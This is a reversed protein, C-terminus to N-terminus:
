VMVFNKNYMYGPLYETPHITQLTIKPLKGLVKKYVAYYNSKMAIEGAYNFIFPNRKLLNFWFNMNNLFFKELVFNLRYSVFLDNGIDHQIQRKYLLDINSKSYGSFAKLITDAVIKGSRIAYHVGEGSVPDVLGAADGVLFVGDKSFKNPLRANPIPFGEIEFPPAQKGRLNFCRKVYDKLLKRPNSFNMKM